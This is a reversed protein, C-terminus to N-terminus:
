LIGKLVHVLFLLAAHGSCVQVYMKWVCTERVCVCVRRERECVCVCVCVCM